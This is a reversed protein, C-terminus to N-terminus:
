YSDDDCTDIIIMIWMPLFRCFYEFIPVYLCMYAHIKECFGNYFGCCDSKKEQYKSVIIIVNTDVSVYFLFLM